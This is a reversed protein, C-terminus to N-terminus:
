HSAKKLAAALAAKAASQKESTLGSPNKINETQIDSNPITKENGPIKNIAVRELAVAYDNIANERQARNWHTLHQAPSVMTICDVPCPAICLECGTCREQDITHMRKPGGVISDVPCAPLCLTCGICKSSDILAVQRVTASGITVDIPIVSRNLVHALAAIVEDGGPHCRNHLVDPELLAQAYPLCGSYGCRTCQTQPLVSQIREILSM